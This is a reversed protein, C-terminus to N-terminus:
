KNYYCTKVGSDFERNNQKAWTQFDIQTKSNEWDVYSHVLALVDILAKAWYKKIREEVLKEIHQKAIEADHLDDQPNDIYYDPLHHTSYNIARLLRNIILSRAKDDQPNIELAKDLYDCGYEYFYKGLWRFPKRNIKEKEVWILLVKKLEITLPQPLPGYDADKVSEALEYIFNVFEIQHDITFSKFKNIFLHLKEFSQKRLGQERMMCYDAYDIWLSNKKALAAVMLLARNQSNSIM